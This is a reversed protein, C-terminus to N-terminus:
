RLRSLRAAMHIRSQAPHRETQGTTMRMIYRTKDYVDIYCDGDDYVRAEGGLAGQGAAEQVLINTNGGDM